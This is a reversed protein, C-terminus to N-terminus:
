HGIRPSDHRPLPDTSPKKLRNRFGDRDLADLGLLRRTHNMPDEGGAFEGKLYSSGRDNIYGAYIHACLLDRFLPKDRFFGNDRLFADLEARLALFTPLRDPIGAADIPAADDFWIERLVGTATRADWVWRTMLPVQEPQTFHLVEAALDRVWRHSRDAPFCAIFDGFRADLEGPAEILRTLLDRMTPYGHDALWAAIRRRVTPMFSCLGLFDAESMERVRGINLMTAFLAVKAGLGHVYADVGGDPEAAALLSELAKRLAPGSLDLVPLPMATDASMAVDSM